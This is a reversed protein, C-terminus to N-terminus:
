LSERMFLPGVLVRINRLLFKKVKLLAEDLVILTARILNLTNFFGIRLGTVQRSCELSIKGMKAAMLMSTNSQGQSYLPSGQILLPKIFAISDGNSHQILIPLPLLLASYNKAM